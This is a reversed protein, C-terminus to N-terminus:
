WQGLMAVGWFFRELKMTLSREDPLREHSAVMACVSVGCGSSGASMAAGSPASASRTPSSGVATPSARRRRATRRRGSDADGLLVARVGGCLDACLRDHRVAGDPRALSVSM